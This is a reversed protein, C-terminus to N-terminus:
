QEKVDASAVLENVVEQLCQPLLQFSLEKEALKKQFDVAQKHKGGKVALLGLM